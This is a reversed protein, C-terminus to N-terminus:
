EAADAMGENLEQAAAVDFKPLVGPTAFDEFMQALDDEEEPWAVWMGDAGLWHTAYDGVNRILLFQEPNEDTIM